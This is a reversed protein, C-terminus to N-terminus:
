AEAREVIRNFRDIFHHRKLFNTVYGHLAREIARQDTANFKAGGRLLRASTATWAIDVQAYLTNSIAVRMSHDSDRAVSVVMGDLRHRDWGIEVCLKRIFRTDKFHHWRM